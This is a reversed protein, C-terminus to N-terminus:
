SSISLMAVLSKFYFETYAENHKTAKANEKPDSVSLYAGRPLGYAGRM